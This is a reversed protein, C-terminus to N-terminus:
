TEEATLMTKLDEESLVPINLKEAKDLKSGANEGALLYDTKLSVSGTVRGGHAEILAAAEQRSMSSLTGTLVFSKGALRNDLPEKTTKEM